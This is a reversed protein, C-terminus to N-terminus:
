SKRAAQPVAPRWGAWRRSPQGTGIIFSSSVKSISGGQTLQVERRGVAAALHCLAYSNNLAPRQLDHIGPELMAYSCPLLPRRCPINIEMFWPGSSEGECAEDKNSQLPRDRMTETLLFPPQNVTSGLPFVRGVFQQSERVSLDQDKM